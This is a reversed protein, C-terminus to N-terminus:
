SNINSESIISFHEDDSESISSKNPTSLIL